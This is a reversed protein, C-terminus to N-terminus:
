PSTLELNFQYYAGVHYLPDDTTTYIYVTHIGPSLVAVDAENSIVDGVGGECGFGGGPAHANGVLNGDIYLEMLEYGPLEREGKGSWTVILNKTGKVSITGTATGTQTYPNGVGACFEDDEFDIRLGSSHISWPSSPVEGPSNYERYAGDQGGAIFGQDTYEWDLVIQESQSSSSEVCFGVPVDDETPLPFPFNGSYVLWCPEPFGIISSSDESSLPSQSSESSMTNSSFYEPDTPTGGCIGPFTSQAHWIAVGDETELRWGFEEPDPECENSRILNPGSFGSDCDYVYEWTLVCKIDDSSESLESVSSFSVTTASSLTSLSSITSSSSLSSSSSSLSSSSTGTTQSSLTSYSETPGVTSESESSLSSSSECSDIVDFVLDNIAITTKTSLQGIYIDSARSSGWAIKGFINDVSILNASPLAQNGFSTNKLNNFAGIAKMGSFGDIELELDYGGENIKYIKSSDFAYTSSSRAIGLLNGSASLEVSSTNNNVIDYRSVRYPTCVWVIDEYINDSVIQIINDYKFEINYDENLNKDISVINASGSKAIWIREESPSASILDYSDGMTATNVIEDKVVDYKVVSNGGDTLIYFNSTYLGSTGDVPSLLDTNLLRKRLGIESRGDIESLRYSSSSPVFSYAYHYGSVTSAIPRLVPQGTKRKITLSGFYNGDSNFCLEQGSEKQVVVSGMIPDISIAETGNTVESSWISATSNDLLIYKNSNAIVIGNRDEGEFYGSTGLKDNSEFECTSLGDKFWFVGQNLTKTNHGLIFIDGSDKNFSIGCPMRMSTDKLESVVLDDNIDIVLGRHNGTDAIVLNRRANDMRMDRPYKLYVNKGSSNTISVYLLNSFGAELMFLGGGGVLDDESLLGQEEETNFLLSYSSLLYINGTFQDIAINQIDRLFNSSFSRALKKEGIDYKYVTKNEQNFYVAHPREGNIMEIFSGSPLAQNIEDLELNNWDIEKLGKDTLAITM